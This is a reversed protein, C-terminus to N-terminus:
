KLGGGESKTFLGVILASAAGWFPGTVIASVMAMSFDHKQAEPLQQWNSICDIYPGGQFEAFLKLILVLPSFFYLGYLTWRKVRGKKV